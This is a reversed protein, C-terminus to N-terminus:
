QSQVYLNHQPMVEASEWYFKPKFFGALAFIKVNEM